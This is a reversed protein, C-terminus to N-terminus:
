ANAWDDAQQQQKTKHPGFKTPDRTKPKRLHYGDEFFKGIGPKWEGPNEEWFKCWAAHDRDIADAVIDPNVSSSIIELYRFIGDQKFGPVPHKQYLAEFREQYDPGMPRIPQVPARKADRVEGEFNAIRLVGLAPTKDVIQGCDTQLNSANQPCEASMGVVPDPYKSKSRIKQNFDVVELYKAGNVEYLRVLAGAKIAVHACEAIWGAVDKDTVREPNTPWCAGRLTAPSAYYRGYDDVVSLLRRYFLEAGPTLANIRPSSNIGERIIRSPM